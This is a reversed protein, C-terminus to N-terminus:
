VRANHKGAWFLRFLLARTAVLLYGIVFLCKRTFLMFANLLATSYNVTNFHTCNTSCLKLHMHTIVQYKQRDQLKHM